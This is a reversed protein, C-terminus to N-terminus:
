PGAAHAWRCASWCSRPKRGGRGSTRRARRWTSRALPTGGPEVSGGATPCRAAKAARAGSAPPVRRQASEPSGGGARNSRRSRRRSICRCARPEMARGRDRLRRGRRRATGPRRGHAARRTGGGPTRRRRSRSTALGTAAPMSCQTCTGASPSLSRDASAGESSFAQPLCLREIGGGAGCPRQDPACHPSHARGQTQGREKERGVSAARNPLFLPCYFTLAPRREELSNQRQRLGIQRVGHLGRFPGAVADAIAPSAAITRRLCAESECLGPGGPAAAAAAAAASTAAAAAPGVIGHKRM